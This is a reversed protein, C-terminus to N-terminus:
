ETSSCVVILTIAISAYSGYKVHHLGHDIRHVM